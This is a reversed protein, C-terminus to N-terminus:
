LARSVANKWGAYDMEIEEPNGKPAYEIGALPRPDCEFKSRLALLLAGYASMEELVSVIIRCGVLDSQRQMLYDNASAGGDARLDHAKVGTESRMANVVDTIQFAISDLAAKVIENRGSTRSLGCILGRADNDWYPAGLGSFAPVLYTNDNANAAMAMNSTEAASSILGLDKELWTLVAGTYNINGELVYDVHGEISWAISTALGNQSLLPVQGINMMVSSGTGYTVKTQGPAFCGQAYLSANSDGLVAAIIVESPFFGGLTTVGFDGDSDIVSPLSDKGISLDQCLEDSWSLENIDLLQTRAANSYDTSFSRCDTLRYILYSDITGLCLDGADKWARAREDNRLIWALKAASFYPSPTLGTIQHIREEDSLLEACIDEARSCQWVIAYGLSKGTIRNWGLCTERQNSITIAVVDCPDIDNTLIVDKIVACVNAFIEEPDHSVWGSNGIIQRHPLSSKGVVNGSMDVLLAKTSQTSQDLGVIYKM